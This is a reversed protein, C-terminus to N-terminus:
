SEPPWHRRILEKTRDEEGFGLRVRGFFAFAHLPLTRAIWSKKMSDDIWSPPLYEEIWVGDIRPLWHAGHRSYLLYGRRPGMITLLGRWFTTPLADAPPGFPSWQTHPIWTKVSRRVLVIGCGTRYRRFALMYCNGWKM